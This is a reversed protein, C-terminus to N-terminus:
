LNFLTEFEDIKERGLSVYTNYQSKLSTLDLKDKFDSYRNIVINLLIKYYLQNNVFWAIKLTEITDIIYDLMNLGDKYGHEVFLKFLIEYYKNDVSNNSKILNIKEMLSKITKCIRKKSEIDNILIRYKKLKIIEGLYCKNSKLMELNVYNYSSTIYNDFKEKLTGINLQHLLNINLIPKIPIIDTVFHKDKPYINVVFSFEVEEEEETKNLVINQKSTVTFNYLSPNNTNFEIDYTKKLALLEQFLLEVCVNIGKDYVHNMKLLYLDHNDPTITILSNYFSLVSLDEKKPVIKKNKTKDEEKIKNNSAVTVEKEINEEEIEDSNVSEDNSKSELLESIKSMNKELFELIDGLSINVILTKLYNNVETTFKEISSSDTYKKTCIIEFYDFNHPYDFPIKLLFPIKENGRKITIFITSNYKSCRINPNTKYSNFLCISKLLNNNYNPTMVPIINVSEM